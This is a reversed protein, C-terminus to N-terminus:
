KTVQELRALFLRQAELARAVRRPTVRYNRCVETLGKRFVYISGLSRFLESSLDIHVASVKNKM